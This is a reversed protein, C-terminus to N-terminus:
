DDDPVLQRIRDLECRSGSRTLLVDRDVCLQGDKSQELYFGSYFDRARCAKELDARIIRSDRMYLMLRNETTSIQVGAIGNMPICNGIKRAKWKPPTRPTDALSSFSSRRTSTRRPIRIRIRREIRVQYIVMPQMTVNSMIQDLPLENREEATLKEMKGELVVDDAPAASFSFLALLPYTFMM